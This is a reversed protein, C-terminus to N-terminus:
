SRALARYAGAHYVLPEAAGLEATEVQGVYIVHDGARHSAVVRCDLSALSGPLLPSGTSGARWELGEFRRHEWEKSAFRDSLERQDAALLNVAFVGSAEIVELTISALDACVLVLPPQLSVSSFASVTM